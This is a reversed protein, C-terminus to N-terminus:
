RNSLARTQVSIIALFICRKGIEKAVDNLKELTRSILVVNLGRKALQVFIFVETLFWM